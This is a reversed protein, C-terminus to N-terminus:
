CMFGISGFLRFLINYVWKSFLNRVEVRCFHFLFSSPRHTRLPVFFTSLSLSGARETRSWVFSKDSIHGIQDPLLYVYSCESRNQAATHKHKYSHARSGEEPRKGATHLPVHLASAEGGGEAGSSLTCCSNDRVRLTPAPGQNRIISLAQFIENSLRVLLTSGGCRLHQVHM